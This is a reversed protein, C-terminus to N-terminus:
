VVYSLREWFLPFLEEEHPQTRDLRFTPQNISVLRAKSRRAKGKLAADKTYVALSLTPGMEAFATDTPCDVVCVYPFLYEKRALPHANSDCFVVTPLLYTRGQFTVLRDPRHAASMDVAGGSKLAEDIEASWGAAANPMAMASLMANPDDLPLPVMTALKAALAAAIEKGHRPVNVTSVAFCSRGSNAGVNDAIAPILSQWDGIRDDGIFLKSFGAGHIQVLPNGAWQRVTADSGFVIAGQTLLPIRNAGEHGCPYFGFVQPPYGAKIHAQILRYPTLPESSGPRILVPIGFPLAILWIVNVGPSNNPMCCGLAPIRPILRVTSNGQVGLGTDLIELPLDRSLGKMIDATNVLATCIRDTNARALAHSLGSTQALLGIYDDPSQPVGGCDLTENRFIDAAAVSMAIRRRVPINRLTESALQLKGGRLCDTAIMSELAQSLTALQEGTGLDAVPLQTVSHYEEGFRLIPIRANTIM